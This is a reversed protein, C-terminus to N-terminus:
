NLVPVVKSKVKVKPTKLMMCTVYFPEPDGIGARHYRSGLLVSFYFTSTSDIIVAQLKMQWFYTM